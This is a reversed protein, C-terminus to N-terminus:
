SENHGLEQPPITESGAKVTQSKVADELFIVFAKDFLVTM